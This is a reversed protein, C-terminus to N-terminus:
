ILCFVTLLGYTTSHSVLSKRELLKLLISLISIPRHNPPDAPDGSKYQPIVKAEQGKFIFM